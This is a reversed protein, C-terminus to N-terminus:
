DQQAKYAKLSAQYRREARTTAKKALRKFREAAESLPEAKLARCYMSAALQEGQAHLKDRKKQEDRTTM